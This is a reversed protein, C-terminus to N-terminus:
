NQDSPAAPPELKPLEHGERALYFTGSRTENNVTASMAGPWPTHNLLTRWQREGEPDDYSFSVRCFTKRCETDLTLADLAEGSYAAHMSEAAKESWDPDRAESAFSDALVKNQAQVLTDTRYQQEEETLVPEPEAPAASGAATSEPSGERVVTRVERLVQPASPKVQKLALVQRNLADVDRASARTMWVAAVAATAIASLFLGLAVSRLKTPENM